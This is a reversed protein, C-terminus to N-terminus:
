KIVAVAILVVLAGLGGVIACRRRDEGRHAAGGAGGGPPVRGPARGPKGAAGRILRHGEASPFAYQESDPGSGDM